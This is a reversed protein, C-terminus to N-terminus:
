DPNKYSELYNLLNPIDMVSQLSFHSVPTKVPKGGAGQTPNVRVNVGVGAAAGALIDVERDGVAMVVSADDIKCVRMAELLMDPSPRGERVMDPTVYPMKHTDWGMAVLLPFALGKEFGTTFAVKVGNARLEMIVEEAGKVARPPNKQWWKLMNRMYADYADSAMLSASQYEYLDHDFHEDCLKRITQSKSIGKLPALDARSIGLGVYSLAAIISEEVGGDDVVTTGYLDFVALKIKAM